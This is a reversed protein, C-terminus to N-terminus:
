LLAATLVTIGGLVSENLFYPEKTLFRITYPDILEADILSNFYVRLFPANVFPCKIAKVSFLVDEGTVPRGDQFHADKRIKFTYSLHDQSVEPRTEAIVPKFALTRPDRSLLGEFILELIDSSASDNSTLPNLQEPDSLSHMVLWDGTVPKGPDPKSVVPKVDTVKVETKDGCGLVLLLALILRWSKARM